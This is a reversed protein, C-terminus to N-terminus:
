VLGQFKIATCDQFVKCYEILMVPAVHSYKKPKYYHWPLLSTQQTVPDDVRDHSKKKWFLWNTFPFRHISINLMCIFMHVRVCEGIFMYVHVCEGIFMHVHM